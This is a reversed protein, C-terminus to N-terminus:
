KSIDKANEANKKREKQTSSNREKCKKKKHSETRRDAQMQSITRKTIQKCSDVSRNM